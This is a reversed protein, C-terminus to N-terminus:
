KGWESILCQPWPGVEVYQEGKYTLVEGDTSSPQNLTSQGQSINTQSMTAFRQVPRIHQFHTHPISKFSPSSDDSKYQESAQGACFGRVDTVLFSRLGM